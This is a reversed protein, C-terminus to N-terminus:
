RREDVVEEYVKEMEGVMRDLSCLKVAMRQGRDAITEAAKPNEVIFRVAKVIADASKPEVLFGNVRDQIMANIAWIDTAVVPKRAVMAEAISFGFGERHTAPHVFIDMTSLIGTVDKVAPNVKACNALGAAQILEELKVRERGDGLIILFINPFNSKLKRVAEVLIAHGKDEVLRSISGVVLAGMPIGLERRETDPNKENFRKQFAEVDISNQVLRIRKEDVGHTKKLEEAVPPSIAIVRAGWCGFLKRGFRPKYFGHATTVFPVKTMKSIFFALVQTVRTHAHVLNVEEKKVLDAIAPLNLYLKPSLESKTRIPFEFVTFGKKRLDEARNGGSSLVGVRYGKQILKLGTMDIYSTIGGINLHTALHLIKIRKRNSM